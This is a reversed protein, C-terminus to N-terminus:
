KIELREIIELLKSGNVKEPEEAGVNEVDEANVESPEEPEMEGLLEQLVAIADRIRQEDAASNRRGSKLELTTDKVEIIDANMNAPITLISVEFLDLDRLENAKRVDELTVTDADRVAYAFSMKCVRGESALKRVYQATENDADIDADILLGREDEVAKSVAGINYFPDDCNHGFLLPIPKGSEQWEKLTRTFAGKAIVDGYADPERDFTAAYATVHGGDLETAKIDFDKQLVDMELAKRHEYFERISEETGEPRDDERCRRLCEDMGPDLDIFEAGADEYREIDEPKPNTHIVWAECQHRLVWLVAASRVHFACERIPSEPRHDGAGLAKAILDYDILIDGDQMHERAYTSKGSCPAGTIVHIM